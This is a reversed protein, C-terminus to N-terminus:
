EHLASTAKLELLKKRYTKKVVLLVAFAVVVLAVLPWRFARLGFTALLGVLFGGATFSLM